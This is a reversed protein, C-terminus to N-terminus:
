VDDCRDRSKRRKACTVCIQKRDLQCVWPSVKTVGVQVQSLQRLILACISVCSQTTQLPRFGFNQWTFNQVVTLVTKLIRDYPIECLWVFKNKRLTVRCLADGSTRFKCETVHSLSVLMRCQWVRWLLTGMIKLMDWVFKDYHRLWKYKTISKTECFVLGLFRDRSSRLKIKSIDTVHAPKLFRDGPGGIEFIQWGLIINGYQM